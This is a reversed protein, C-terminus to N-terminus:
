VDVNEKTTTIECQGDASLIDVLNYQKLNHNSLNYFIVENNPDHRELTKILDTVQM